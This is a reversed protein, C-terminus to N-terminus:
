ACEPPPVTSTLTISLPEPSILPFSFDFEAQAALSANQQPLDYQFDQFQQHLQDQASHDAPLNQELEAALDSEREDNLVTLILQAGKRTVNKVDYYQDGIRLEHANIWTAAQLDAAGLVLTQEQADTDAQLATAQQEKVAALQLALGCQYFSPLLLCLVALLPAFRFRSNRNIIM